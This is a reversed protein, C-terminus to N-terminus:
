QGGCALARFDARPVLGNPDSLASLIHDSDVRALDSVHFVPGDASWRSKHTWGYIRVEQGPNLVSLPTVVKWGPEPDSLDLTAGSKIPSGSAWRERDNSHADSNSTDDRYLTLGDIYGRCIVVVALLHGQADKTLGVSGGSEVSCGSTFVLAAALPVVIRTLRM